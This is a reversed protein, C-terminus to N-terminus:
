CKNDGPIGPPELLDQTARQHESIEGKVSIADSGGPLASLYSAVRGEGDRRVRSDEGCCVPTVLQRAGAASAGLSGM